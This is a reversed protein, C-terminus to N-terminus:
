EGGETPETLSAEEFVGEPQSEQVGEPPSPPPSAPQVPQPAWVAPRRWRRIGWRILLALLPLVLALFGTSLMQLLDLYYKFGLKLDPLYWTFKINHLWYFLDVQLLLIYGVFFSFAVMREATELASRKWSIVALIIGVLLVSLAADIIRQNFFAKIQSETNFASLSWNYGRGFFLANYLIFYLIAFALPLLLQRLRKRYNLLYLLPVVAVLLAIPFRALRERWIRRARAARAKATLEEHFATLSGEEGRTMNERYKKLVDDAFPKAGLSQAYADYFGVLQLAANISKRGKDEATAEIM